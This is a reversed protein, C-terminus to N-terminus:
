PVISNLLFSLLETSTIELLRPLEVIDRLELFTMTLFLPTSTLLEINTGLPSVNSNSTSPMLPNLTSLTFTFSLTIVGTSSFYENSTNPSIIIEISVTSEDIM